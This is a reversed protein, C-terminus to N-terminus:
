RFHGMDRVHRNHMKLAIYDSGFIPIREAVVSSTQPHVVSDDAIMDPSIGLTKLVTSVDWELAKDVLFYEEVDVFSVDFFLVLGM